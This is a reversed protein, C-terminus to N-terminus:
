DQHGRKSPIMNVGFVVGVILLFVAFNWLVPPNPDSKRAIPPRPAEKPVDSEDTGIGLGQGGDLPQQALTPTSALALLGAAILCSPLRKM